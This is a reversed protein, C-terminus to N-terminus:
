KTIAEAVESTAKGTIKAVVANTIAQSMNIQSTLVQMTLKELEPNGGGGGVAGLIQMLESAGGGKPSPQNEMAAVQQNRLKIMVQEMAKPLDEKTPVNQAIINLRLEVSKAWDVIQNLDVGFKKAM